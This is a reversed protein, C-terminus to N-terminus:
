AGLYAAVVDPHGHGLIAPGWSGVYDILKRGDATVVHAGSASAIFPPEGGGAGFARVPSNVGGPIYQKAQDFLSM